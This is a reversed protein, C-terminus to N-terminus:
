RSRRLRRSAITFAIVVLWGAAADQGGGRSVACNAYSLARPEAPEVNAEARLIRANPVETGPSPDQLDAGVSTEKPDTKQPPALEISEPEVVPVNGAEAFARAVLEASQGRHTYISHASTGTCTAASNAPDRPLGNGVRSAVGVLAGSRAFAPGGSDGLCAAEGFMVEANGIGYIKGPM